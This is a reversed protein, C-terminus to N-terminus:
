ERLSKRRLFLLFAGMGFLAYTSPEPILVMQQFTQGLLIDVTTPLPPPPVLPDFAVVSTASGGVVTPDFFSFPAATNLPTTNVVRVYIDLTGANPVTVGGGGSDTGSSINNDLQNFTPGTASSNTLLLVDDGTPLSPDGGVPDIGGGGQDWLLLWIAGASNLGDGAGAPPNSAEWHLVGGALTQWNINIDANASLGLSLMGFLMTIRKMKGYEM